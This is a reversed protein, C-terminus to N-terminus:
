QLKLSQFFTDAMEPTLRQAYIVAQYVHRGKSFYQAESQVRSGDTRTGQASVRVAAVGEGQAGTSAVRAPQERLQEGRLNSLTASRWGRLVADVEGTPALEAHALAFTAGSADCGVMHLTVPQGGLPVERSGRDPKCPLLLTLNALEPRVERWNLAPSCAALGLLAGSLVLVFYFRM